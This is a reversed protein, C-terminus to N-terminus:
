GLNVFPLQLYADKTVFVKDCHLLMTVGIGIAVGDVAAVIPVTSKALSMIFQFAPATEDKPPRAQFDKLDNGATFVGEAGSILICGVFNDTEAKYIAEAMAQYMEFTLANKKEPRNIQIHLIAGLQNVNIARIM